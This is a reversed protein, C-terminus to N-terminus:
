RSQDAAVYCQRLLERLPHFTVVTELQGRRNRQVQDTEAVFSSVSYVLCDQLAEVVAAVEIERVRFQIPLEGQTDAHSLGIGLLPM